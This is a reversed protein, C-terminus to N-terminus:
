RSRPLSPSRSHVSYTVAARTAVCGVLLVGGVVLMALHGVGAGLGFSSAIGVLSYGKEAENADLKGLLAPYATLGDFGLLAWAGMTVAFGIVIALACERSRRMALTWVLVPWLFLKASVAIGLAIASPGVSRRYRWTLALAFALAATVGAMDLEQWTPAWIFCAAYCRVDRVGLVALTAVLLGASVLVALLAAVDEPVLTLPAVVFAVQPPYVYGKDEQLARDALGPYPSKGHVVAHAAPLYVLRLDAALRHSRLGALAGVVLITVVAILLGTWLLQLRGLDRKASRRAAGPDRFPFRLSPGMRREPPRLVDVDGEHALNGLHRSATVTGM